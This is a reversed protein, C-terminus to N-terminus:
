SFSAPRLHPEKDELLDNVFENLNATAVCVHRDGGGYYVFLYDEKVVAGCAYVVGPKWENEYWADPTLVPSHSRAIIKRPDDSDLLMAGLRYQHPYKKDTAHYLVLWGAETRIPPPGAGRVWTDWGKRPTKGGFKSNIRQKGNGLDELNEVFDIQVEPNISHLIAFKGDIKEPFLVWNKNIEGEPSLLIPEDWEFKGNLFDEEDIGVATARIFDWGDFANFTVYVRGDISVMRPDEAGSWSGGSPFLEPDYKRLEPPTYSGKRMAYVPHKLADSFDFGCKSRAYGLRSVGDGGLARYLMHVTGEGDMMVAPNFTGMVGWEQEENPAIVPNNRHKQLVSGKSRTPSSSALPNDLVVAYIKERKGYAYVTIEDQNIQAGLISIGNRKSTVSWIPEDSRWHVHAPNDHAIFAVGLDTTERFRKTNRSSYVLLIGQEQYHAAVVDLRGHDFYDKRPELIPQQRIHWNDLQKGTALKIGRDAYYLVYHGNSKHEPVLAASTARIPRNLQLGEWTAIDWDHEDPVALALHSKDTEEDHRIYTAIDKHAVSSLKLNTCYDLNESGGSPYMIVPAEDSESFNTYDSSYAVALKSHGPRKSRYSLATSDHFSSVGLPKIVNGPASVSFHRKM